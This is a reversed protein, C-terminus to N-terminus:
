KAFHTQLNYIDDAEPCLLFDIECGAAYIEM